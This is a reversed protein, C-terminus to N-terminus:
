EIWGYERLWYVADARTLPARVRGTDIYREKLLSCPFKMGEGDYVHDPNDVIFQLFRAVEYPDDFGFSMDGNVLIVDVDFNPTDLGVSM